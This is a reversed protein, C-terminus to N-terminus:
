SQVILPSTTIYAVNYWLVARGPSIRYMDTSAGPQAREVTEVRPYDCRRAEPEVKRIHYEEAM